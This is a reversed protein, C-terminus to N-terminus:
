PLVDAVTTIKELSPPVPDKWNAELETLRVVASPMATSNVYSEIVKLSTKDTNEFLSYGQHNDNCNDGQPTECCDGTRQTADWFVTAAVGKRTQRKGFNSVVVLRFEGAM